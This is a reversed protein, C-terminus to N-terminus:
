VSVIMDSGLVCCHEENLSPDKEKHSDTHTERYRNASRTYRHSQMVAILGFITLLLRQQPIHLSAGSYHAFSLLSTMLM